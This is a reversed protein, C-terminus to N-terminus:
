GAFLPTVADLAEEAEAGTASLVLETCRRRADVVRVGGCQSGADM